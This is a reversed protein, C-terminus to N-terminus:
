VRLNPNTPTEFILMKSNPKVAASITSPDHADFESVSIGQRPLVKEGLRFTGGYIDSAILLHDGNELLGFTAAIAAMGSSFVTCHAG